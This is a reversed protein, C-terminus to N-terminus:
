RTTDQRAELVDDIEKLEEELEREIIEYLQKKRPRAHDEEHFHSKKYYLKNRM